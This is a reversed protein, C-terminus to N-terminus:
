KQTVVPASGTELDETLAFVPTPPPPEPPSRPYMIAGVIADRFKVAASHKGM